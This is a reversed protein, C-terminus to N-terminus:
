FGIVRHQFYALHRPQRAYADFGQAKIFPLAKQPLWRSGHATISQVRLVHKLPQFEYLARLHESKRKGFDRLDYSFLLRTVTGTTVHAFYHSPPEPFRFLSYFLHTAM